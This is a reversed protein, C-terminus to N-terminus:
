KKIKPTFTPDGTMVIRHLTEDWKAPGAVAHAFEEAHHLYVKGGAGVCLAYTAATAGGYIGNPDIQDLTYPNGNYHQMQTPNTVQWTAPVPFGISPCFFVPNPVGQVFFFTTTQTTDAQATEADILTQRIQSYNFVPVPQSKDLARLTQGSRKQDSSTSAGSTCATMTLALALAAVGLIIKKLSKM